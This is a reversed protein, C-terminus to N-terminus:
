FDGFVEGGNITGLAGWTGYPSPGSLQEPAGQNGANITERVFRVSGDAFSANVGGTHRSQASFLGPTNSGSTTANGGTYCTPSNPPLITNFGTFEASGDNWRVGAYYVNLLVNPNYEGTARNVTLLCESPNNAVNTVGIAANGLITRPGMRFTRESMMISNSTGDTVDTVRIKSNWGFLGRPKYTGSLGTNSVFDGWCVAYSTSAIEGTRGGRADYRPTDSPCHMNPMQFAKGWPDYNQDWPVPVSTYTTTGYTQPVTFILNQLNSQEIYPTIYVLASLREQSTSGPPGTRGSPFASNAEHYNHFALALQKLHNQCKMRSAAERVKQVAPLLLGILIAIIAIVVLLEILTFARRHLPAPTM